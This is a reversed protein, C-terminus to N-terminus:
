DRLPTTAFHRMGREFDIGADFGLQERARRPSAFVHRVDGLRVRGRRGSVARGSTVM